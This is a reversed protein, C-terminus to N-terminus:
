GNNVEETTEVAPETTRIEEAYEKKSRMFFASVILLIVTLVFLVIGAISRPVGIANAEVDGMNHVTFYIGIPSLCPTLFKILAIVIAFMAIIYLADVFLPKDGSILSNVLLAVISWIAIVMLAVVWKDGVFHFADFTASYMIFSAIAFVLTVALLIFGARPQKIKIM